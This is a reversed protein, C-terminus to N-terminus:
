SGKSITDTTSVTSQTQTELTADDAANRLIVTGTSRDRTRKNASWEFVRRLMGLIGSPRGATEAPTTITSETIAGNALTMASGVAAPSAPLNDTKAKIATISTNDPETNRVYSGSGHDSTVQAATASVLASGAGATLTMADGAQSATKAPDYASTLSFGTKDSVTVSPTANNLSTKQTSTFDFATNFAFSSSNLAYAGGTVQTQTLTSLGAQIKTVAAASIEASGIADTAIAAADIAGAAFTAADIAGDAIKAATIADAAIAAANIAGAAFTAADITGDAVKAATIADAAIGTATLWGATIAPLNTLTTVTDLTGTINGTINGRIPVGGTGAVAKFGDSAGGTGGTVFLGHKDTGNAALTIGHGATPSLNFGDGATTTVSLGHGSTAGGVLKVGNGTGGGTALLGQGTGVGALNFGNGNTSAATAKIGDGTAGSGSTALIGHGVGGGTASIGHSTTSGGAANIGHKTTGVGTATLGHGSTTAVASLGDGSTAGGVLSAGHGTPGGTSLIGAGTGAGAANFGKGNTSAATAQIGDGTAGSGSTAVIGSGTGNGTATIASANSTSRSVLLGDSLTTSGTVTLAGLTTTGSNSGSILLGGSAGAAANPIGTLGFHVADDVDVSVLQVEIPLPAMNTAGKLHFACSKAGAALAANPPCFQYWGAMNTADIEKFGSSTFTGVTMTVLSIATATTDTDRHYYATLSATNFALGTLGAGTTSSSDAIFIQWIEGTVGAKRILKM